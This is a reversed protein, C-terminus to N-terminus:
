PTDPRRLLVAVAMAAVGERRGIFGVGENTTAKIGVAGVPVGFAAAVAQRMAAVHPGLRPEEAVVTLDLQAPEWGHRRVLGAVRAALSASSAGAWRPDGPPFWHGIDPLGAAGLVADMAAHLVVDADSHGELGREWPIPVGGLVLPRGPAFRHVDYGFGVRWPLVAGPGGGGWPGSPSGAQDPVPQEAAAEAGSAPLRSTGGAPHRAPGPAQEQAQVLHAAVAFDVPWTLKLNAPDGPVVAVPVGLRELIAADDTFGQWGRRRVEQHAAWILDLRFGQPTQVARLRWRPLTSAVWEPLSGGAPDAGAPDVPLAAGAGEREGEGAGPEPGPPHGAVEKITDGVPVAPVAAGYRGAAALVARILNPTVLPRAADHILVWAPPRPGEALCRLAAYVSDEREAGGDVLQVAVGPPLWPRVREEWLLREEPRLAVVLRGIGAAALAQLSRALVPRGALDRFVKNLGGGLRTSRGAAPVVAAVGGALATAGGAVTVPEDPRTM